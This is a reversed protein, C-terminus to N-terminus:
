SKVLEAIWKPLPRIYGEPTRCLGFSLKTGAPCREQRLGPPPPPLICMGGGFQKKCADLTKFAQAETLGYSEKLERLSNTNSTVIDQARGATSSQTANVAIVKGTGCAEHIPGTLEQATVEAISGPFVLEEGVRAYSPSESSGYALYGDRDIFLQAGLPFLVLANGHDAARFCGDRLVVRARSNISNVMGLPRDSRPFIRVLSAISAPLPTNIESASRNTKFELEVSEPIKVGKREVMARFESEPVNVFVDVSNRGTGAGEIVRDPAFTDIMFQLDALLQAESFRVTKGIFRPRKTYKRLTGPGDRLFQYVASPDGENDYYVSVFNGKEAVRLKKVLALVDGRVANQFEGARRFQAHAAAQDATMPKPASPEAPTFPASPADLITAFGEAGIVAGRPLIDPAPAANGQQGCASAALLGCM